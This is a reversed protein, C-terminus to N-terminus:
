PNPDKGTIMLINAYSLEGNVILYVGPCSLVMTTLDITRKQKSIKVSAKNAGACVVETELNIKDVAKKAYEMNLFGNKFADPTPAPLKDDM